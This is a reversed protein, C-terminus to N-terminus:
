LSHSVDKLLTCNNSQRAGLNRFTFLWAEFGHTRNGIDRQWMSGDKDEWQFDELIAQFLDPEKVFFVQNARVFQDVIWPIQGNPTTWTVAKYGNDLVMTGMDARRDARIYAAARQQISLQSYIATPWGGGGLNWGQSAGQDMLEPTWARLTGSNGLVNAQLLPNSSRSLNQFTAVLTGDDVLGALGMITNGRTGARFIFDNAVTSANASQVYTDATTNITGANITVAADHAAGGSTATFVDLAMGSRLFRVGNFGNSGPANQMTITTSAVSLVKGLEGNGTGFVANLALDEELQNRAGMVETDVADAFAGPDSKAQAM